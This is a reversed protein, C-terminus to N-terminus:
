RRPRSPQAGGTMRNLAAAVPGRRDRHAERLVAGRVQNNIWATLSQEASAAAIRAVAHTNDDLHLLIRAM